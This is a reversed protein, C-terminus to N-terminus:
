CTTCIIEPRRGIDPCLKSAILRPRDEAKVLLAQDATHFVQANPDRADTLMVRRTGPLTIAGIFGYGGSPRFQGQESFPIDCRGFSGSLTRGAATPVLVHSLVLMMLCIMVGFVFSSRAM